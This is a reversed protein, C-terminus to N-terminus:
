YLRSQQMDILVTSSPTKQPTKQQQKKKSTELINSLRIRQTEFVNEFFAGSEKM